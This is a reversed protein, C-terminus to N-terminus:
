RCSVPIPIVQELYISYILVERVTRGTMEALAEAYLELQIQYRRVLEEPRKVHDSKYDVLTIGKEDLIFADIIGQLLVPEEQGSEPFLRNHPVMKMFHQERFLTNERQAARFQEALPTKLFAEFRDPRILRYEEDPLIEKLQGIEKEYDYREFAHHYANGVEAGAKESYRKQVPQEEDHGTEANLKWGAQNKEIEAEKIESVSHKPALRTIEIYPYQYDAKEKLYRVMPDDERVARMSETLLQRTLKVNETMKEQSFIFESLPITNTRIVQGTKLLDEGRAMLILDLYSNASRIDIISPKQMTECAKIKKELRAAAGVMILKQEARTMAVYLLRQEEGAMDTILKQEIAERHLSLMKVSEEPEIYDGAAGLERDILVPEQFSKKNFQKGLGALFVVPFQLGKSGHITMIRVLDDQDSYVSAEGQDQDYKKQKEIYRIFDGVGRYSSDEFAIAYDVLADLNARRKEGAPMATVYDYYGTEEYIRYLLEHIPLVGALRRFESLKEYFEQLKRYLVPANKEFEKQANQRVNEREEAAEREETGCNEPIKEPYSRRFDGQRLRIEALEADSFSFAPGRMVAALPIDRDMNDILSLVSLIYEVEITTFYGSSSISYAPVGQETLVKACEEAWNKQSRVLIVIDRYHYGERLLARIKKAILLAEAETKGPLPVNTIGGSADMDILLLETTHDGEACETVSGDELIMTKSDADFVRGQHLASKEEYEVGGVASKMIKFFVSNVADLIEKRSRYNTSLEIVPYDPDDYKKMFLQPCAQRFGYISQKVDGVQFVDPRGFREASLAQILAEQVDNSDQYEDVLIERYHGALMDATVSPVMEGNKETYLLELAKHELDSFDLMHRNEKEAQYRKRFDVTLSVLNNMMQKEWTETAEASKEDMHLSGIERIMDKVKDRTAKVAAREEAKARGINKFVMRSCCSIISEPTEEGVIKELQEVDSQIAALYGNLGDISKCLEEAAKLEELGLGLIDLYYTKLFSKWATHKGDQMEELYKEPWPAAEAYEHFKLIMEPIASDSRKGTFSDAFTQFAIDGCEFREEMLSALVDAKLLELEGKNGIRFGPDLDIAAYNETILKKCFAHITSISANQISGTERILRRNEPEKELAQDLATKIRERMEQAAAETFTMIVMEDLSVPDSQDQIRAIVHEVLVATKGSGAAAAVLLNGKRHDIIKQQNKTWRTTM